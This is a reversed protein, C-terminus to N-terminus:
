PVSVKNKGYSYIMITAIRVTKTGLNKVSCYLIAREGKHYTYNSETPNFVPAPTIYRHEKRGLVLILLSFSKLIEICFIHAVCRCFPVLRMKKTCWVLNDCSEPRVFDMWYLLRGKEIGVGQSKKKLIDFGWWGVCLVCIIKYIFKSINSVLYWLLTNLNAKVFALKVLSSIVFPISLMYLPKLFM